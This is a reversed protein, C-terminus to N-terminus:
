MPRRTSWVEFISKEQGMPLTLSVTVTELSPPSLNLKRLGVAALDDAVLANLLHRTVSAVILRQEREARTDVVGLIRLIRPFLVVYAVLHVYRTDGLRGCLLVEIAARVIGRVAPRGRVHWQVSDGLELNHQIGVVRGVPACPSARYVDGRLGSWRCEHSLRRTRVGDRAQHGSDCM